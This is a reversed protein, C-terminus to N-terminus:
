YTANSDVAAAAALIPPRRILIPSPREGCYRSLYRARRLALSRGHGGADTRFDAQTLVRAQELHTEVIAAAELQRELVQADVRRRGFNLSVAGPLADLDDALLAD